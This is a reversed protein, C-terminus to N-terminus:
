SQISFKLGTSQIGVPQRSLLAATRAALAMFEQAAASSNDAAVSPLGEDTGSRISKNLPLQGLLPLEFDKAMQAGGGHDFIAEVHGCNPCVFRSMNEVVGLTAIGVKRFMMIARRADQLAVEQPTSVIVAGTVPVKQALTLQIDGTGPPLDILLYDLQGWATQSLLQQLASSVMPGRWVAPAEDGLLLGISMLKIGHAEKPIIQKDETVDPQGQVGFMRPQSPGHIDADLVGVKAGQAALALALNATVTSKGVGGKGSGVAIINKIGPVPEQKDQVRHSRVRWSVNVLVREIEPMHEQLFAVMASALEERRQAVPYPLLVEVAIQSGDIGIGQICDIGGEGQGISLGTVPDVFATLVQRVESEQIKSSM